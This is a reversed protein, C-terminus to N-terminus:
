FLNILFRNMLKGQPASSTSPQAPRSPQNGWASPATQAPASPGAASILSSVSFVNACSTLFDFSYCSLVISSYFGPRNETPPANSPQSRAPQNGWASQAAQAGLIM